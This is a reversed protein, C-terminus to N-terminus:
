LSTRQGLSGDILTRLERSAHQPDAAACIASIVAVGDAGARIVDATNAANIGAIATLPMTIQKRLYAAIGAFGQLGIPPNPNDKSTTSFVGGISIYDVLDLPAAEAEALSRVTLGIIANRGLLRRADKVPM